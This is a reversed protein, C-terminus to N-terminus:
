TSFDVYRRDMLDLLRGPTAILLDAGERLAAIQPRESVGGFATAVRLPM